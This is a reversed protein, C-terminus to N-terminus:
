PGSMPRPAVRKGPVRMRRARIAVAVIAVAATLAGGLAVPAAWGGAGADQGVVVHIPSPYGPGFDGEAGRGHPFAWLRWEGVPLTVEGRFLDPQVMRLPVPVLDPVGTAPDRRQFELVDTLTGDYTFGYPQSHEADAWTRLTVIIPEGPAPQAPNLEVSFYPMKAAAPAASALILGASFLAPILLRLRRTTLM